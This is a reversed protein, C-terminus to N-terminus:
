NENFCIVLDDDCKVENAYFYLGDICLRVNEPEYMDTVVYDGNYYPNEEVFRDSFGNISHDWARYIRQYSGIYEGTWGPCQLGLIFRNYEVKNDISQINYIHSEVLMDGQYEDLRYEGSITWEVNINDSYDTYWGYIPLGDKYYDDYYNDYENRMFTSVFSYTGTYTVHKYKENIEAVYTYKCANEDFESTVTYNNFHSLTDNEKGVSQILYTPEQKVVIKPESNEYWQEVVWGTDYKVSFLKVYMILKMYDDELEVVCDATDNKGNRSHREIHLDKIKLTQVTDDYDLVYSTIASPMTKKLDRELGSTRSSSIIAILVVAIIAIILWSHPKKKNSVTNTMIPQQVCDKVEVNQKENTNAVNEPKQWFPAPNQLGCNPCFGADHPMNAGCRKCYM